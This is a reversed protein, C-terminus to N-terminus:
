LSRKPPKLEAPAHWLFRIEANHPIGRAHSRVWTENAKLVIGVRRARDHAGESATQGDNLRRRHGAVFSGSCYDWDGVPELHAQWPWPRKRPLSRASPRRYRTASSSPRWRPRAPEHKRASTAPEMEICTADAFALLACTWATGVDRDAVDECILLPLPDHDSLVLEGNLTEPGRSLRFPLLLRNATGAIPLLTLEGLDCELIVAHEYAVQRELRIRRSADLCADILEPTLDDPLLNIRRRAAARKREAKAKTAAAEAAARQEQEHQWAGLLGAEAGHLADAIQQWHTGPQLFNARIVEGHTVYAGTAHITALRLDGRMIAFAKEQPRLFARLGEGFRANVEIAKIFKDGACKLAMADIVDNWGLVGSSPRIKALPPTQRGNIWLSGRRGVEVRIGADGFFALMCGVGPLGHELQEEEKRTIPERSDSKRARITASSPSSHKAQALRRQANAPRKAKGRQPRAASRPEAAPRARGSDRRPVGGGGPKQGSAKRLSEIGEQEWKALLRATIEAKKAETLGGKRTRNSTQRVGDAQVEKAPRSGKSRGAAKGSTGSRRAEPISGGTVRVHRRVFPM